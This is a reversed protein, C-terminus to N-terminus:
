EKKKNKKAAMEKKADKIFDEIESDSLKDLVKIAKEYLKLKDTEDKVLAGIYKAVKSPIQVGTVGFKKLRERVRAALKGFALFAPSAERKM